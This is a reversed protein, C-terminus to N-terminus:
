VIVRWVDSIDVYSPHRHEGEYHRQSFYRHPPLETLFRPFSSVTSETLQSKIELNWLSPLGRGLSSRKDQLTDDSAATSDEQGCFNVDKSLHFMGENLPIMQLTNREALNINVDSIQIPEFYTIKIM